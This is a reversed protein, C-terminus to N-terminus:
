ATKWHRRRCKWTAAFLVVGGVSSRGETMSQYGDDDSCLLDAAMAVLATMEKRIAM